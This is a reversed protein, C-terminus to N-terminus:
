NVDAYITAIVALAFMVVTGIVAIELQRRSAALTDVPAGTSILFDGEGRARILGRVEPGHEPGPAEVLGLAFCAAGAPLWRETFYLGSADTLPEALDVGSTLRDHLAADITAPYEGAWKKERPELLEARGPWVLVRLGAEDVLAFPETSSDAALTVREGRPGFDRFSDRDREVRWDSWVAPEAGLSSRREAGHFAVRGQIRAEIGPRAQAVAVTPTGGVARLRRWSMLAVTLGVVWFAHLFLAYKLLM